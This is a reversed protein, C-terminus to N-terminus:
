PQWPLVEREFIRKMEDFLITMGITTVTHDPVFLFMGLGISTKLPRGYKWKELWPYVLLDYTFYTVGGIMLTRATTEQWEEDFLAM